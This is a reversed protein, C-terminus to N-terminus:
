IKQVFFKADLFDLIESELEAILVQYEETLSNMQQGQENDLSSM